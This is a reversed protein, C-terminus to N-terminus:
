DEKPPLDQEVFKKGKSTIKINEMSSTDIWEKGSSDWLSQLFAAPVKQNADRYCTYIHSMSIQEIRLINKLYYAFVANKEIASSPNKEGIFDKLSKKDGSGALDLDEVLSYLEQRKKIKKKPSVEKKKSKVALGSKIADAPKTSLFEKDATVGDENLEEQVKTSAPKEEASSVPESQEAPEEEASSVPWALEATSSQASLFKSLIVQYTEKQFEEPAMKALRSAQNIAKITEEENMTKGM